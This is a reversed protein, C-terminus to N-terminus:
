NEFQERRKYVIETTMLNVFSDTPLETLSIFIDRRRQYSCIEQQVAVRLSCVVLALSINEYKNTELFNHM